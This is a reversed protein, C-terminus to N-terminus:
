GNHILDLWPPHSRTLHPDSRALQNSRRATLALTAVTRPEIGADERCLPIQPAVSSCYQIVYMFFSFLVQRLLYTSEPICSPFIAAGKQLNEPPELM